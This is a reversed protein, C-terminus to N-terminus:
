ATLQLHILRSFILVFQMSRSVDRLQEPDEKYADLLQKLTKIGRSNLNRLPAGNKAINVLVDLADNEKPIEKKANATCLSHGCFCPKFTKFGGKKSPHQLVCHM